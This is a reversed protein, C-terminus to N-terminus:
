SKTEIVNKIIIAAEAIRKKDYRPDLWLTLVIQGWREADAHSQGQLRRPLSDTLPPYNTGADFGNRRLADVVSNRLKSCEFRFVARWPTRIPIEPMRLAPALESLSSQWLDLRSLRSANEQPFRSLANLINGRENEDFKNRCHLLDIELLPEGVEPRGLASLYRRALVLNLEVAETEASVTPWGDARRELAKALASDNTLIAGSGEADITKGGGFSLLLADSAGERRLSISAALSDNELVFWGRQSAIRRTRPYDSWMGYLHTPMVVGFRAQHEEITAALRDDEALGSMPSVPVLKTEYGAADVATSVAVCINSPIFATAPRQGVEELVAVLGARARGFLVAHEYAFLECLQSECAPVV